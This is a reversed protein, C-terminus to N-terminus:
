KIKEADVDGGKAKKMKTSGKPRGVPKKTKQKELELAKQITEIEKEVKQIRGSLRNIKNNKKKLEESSSFELRKTRMLEEQLIFLDNQAKELFEVLRSTDSKVIAFYAEQERKEDAQKQLQIVTLNVSSETNILLMAEEESLFGLQLQEVAIKFRNAFHTKLKTLVNNKRRKFLDKLASKLNNIWRKLFFEKTDYEIELEEELKRKEEVIKKLHKKTKIFETNLNYKESLKLILEVKRENNM